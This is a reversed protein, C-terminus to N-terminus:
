EDPRAGQKTDIKSLHRSIFYVSVALVIMLVISGPRVLFSAGWISISKVLADEAAVGLIFGIVFPARPWDQKKFVFGIIGLGFLVALLRWENSSIYSGMLAFLFIYPALYVSNIRRIAMLYNSGLMLFVAALINSLVLTWVMIWVLDSQEFILNPGPNVGLPVMAVLLIAMGSSGPLGLFLTPVLSGGEKSNNAAEPGIVGEM